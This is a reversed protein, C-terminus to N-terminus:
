NGVRGNTYPYGQEARYKQVTSKTTTKIQYNLEEFPNEEPIFDFGGYNAVNNFRNKCHGMRLHDCGQTFLIEDGVQLDFYPYGVRVQTLNNTVISQVEGTRVNKGTGLALQGGGRGTGTLTILQGQIKTVVGTTQYTAPNAKCRADFLVHNCLRQYSVANINGSLRTVLLNSTQITAWEGDSNAGIFEGQYEVSYEVDLDDGIHGRRVTVVLSPPNVLNCFARAIETDAPVRFDNTTLADVVSSIEIASVTMPLPDYWEGALRIREHYSTYRWTKHIAAFEVVEVPAGQSISRDKAAYSM